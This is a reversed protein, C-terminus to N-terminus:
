VYSYITWPRALDIVLFFFILCKTEEVKPNWKIRSNRLQTGRVQLLCSFTKSGDGTVLVVVSPFIYCSHSRHANDNWQRECFSFSHYMADTNTHPHHHHHHMLFFCNQSSYSTTVQLMLETGMKRPIYKSFWKNEIM